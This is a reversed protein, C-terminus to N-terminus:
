KRGYGCQAILPAKTNAIRPMRGAQIHGLAETYLVIALGALEAAFHHCLAPKICCVGFYLPLAVAQHHHHTHHHHHHHRCHRHPVSLPLQHPHLLPIPFILTIIVIMTTTVIIMIVSVGLVVVLLTIGGGGAVVESSVENM